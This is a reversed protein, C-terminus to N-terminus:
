SSASGRCSAEKILHDYSPDTVIGNESMADVLEARVLEYEIRWGAAKLLLETVSERGTWLETSRLLCLSGDGNLHWKHQARLLVDPDPDRPVISPCVIPYSQPYYMDLALGAGGTVGDLGDPRPRDFPWDPLRGHWSGANERVFRLDPLREPIERRDRTLREPDSEWWSAM